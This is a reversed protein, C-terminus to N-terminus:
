RISGSFTALRERPQSDRELQERLMELSKAHLRCVWSKSLGLKSGIQEFTLGEFYCYELVQRNKEPLRSLSHRLNKSQQARIISDEISLEPQDVPENPLVELSLMYCSLLNATLNKLDQLQEEASSVVPTDNSLDKFYENASMEFRMQQYQSKPFWGMKRLGDYIAGKIRYYAFTKFQVGRTRDFSNAAEVLGLKAWGQVDKRDVESPLKRLVEAAIASAYSLNAEILSSVEAGEYGQSSSHTTDNRALM